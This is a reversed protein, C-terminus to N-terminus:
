PMFWPKINPSDTGGTVSKWNDYNGDIESQPYIIRFVNYGPSSTALTVGPTAYNTRRALTWGEM